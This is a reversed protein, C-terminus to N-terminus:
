PSYCALRSRRTGSARPTTSATGCPRTLVRRVGFLLLSRIRQQERSISTKEEKGAHKHTHVCDASPSSHGRWARSSHRRRRPRAGLRSAVLRRARTRPAADSYVRSQRRRAPRALPRRMAARRDQAPPASSRAAADLSDSLRGCSSAQRWVLAVPDVVGYTNHKKSRAHQNSLAQTHLDISIM